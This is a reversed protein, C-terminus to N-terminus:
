KTTLEKHCNLAFYKAETLRMFPTASTFLLKTNPLDAIAQIIQSQTSNINKALQCEDVIILRPAMIKHWVWVIEEVGKTVVTKSKLFYKGFESRLQEVNIVHCQSEKVLGFRDSMVRHTQEVISARTIYVVPWPSICSEFFNLAPDYLQEIIFGCVYTKGVGTGARCLVARKNEVVLKQLAAKIAKTQHVLSFTDKPRLIYSFAPKQATKPEDRALVLDQALANRTDRNFSPSEKTEVRAEKQEQPGKNGSTQQREVKFLNQFLRQKYNEEQVKIIEYTLPQNLQEQPFAYELEGKTHGLLLLADNLTKVKRTLNFGVKIQSFKNELCKLQEQPTM